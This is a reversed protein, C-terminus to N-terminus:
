VCKVMRLGGGYRIPCPTTSKASIRLFGAPYRLRMVFLISVTLGKFLVEFCTEPM